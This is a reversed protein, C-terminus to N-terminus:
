LGWFFHLGSLITLAILLSLPAGVRLFTRVSYGGSSMVIVNVPHGFPTMFAVSCGLAVAMGMSRADVGLSQAASIALPALILASVQGGILQALFITIVLLIAAMALPALGGFLNLLVGISKDALGSSRIATSLPWMGAIIFIARWEISRYADDMSLCNTLILLIAGVLSVVAVPLWGLSAIGLTLLTITLAHRARGPSFVPDPDEQLVIFDSESRLLVLSSAPGQVLMADGFLLPLDTKGSQIPQGARWIALVNFGYKERFHIDCLSKGILSTHPSLVVEALIVSEDTVRIPLPSDQLLRLGYRRLTEASPSGQALIIDGERIVEERRPALYVHDDRVLGVVTLGFRQHWQGEQLSQNAVASGTDVLVKCLSKELGYLNSLGMDIQRSWAAEGIPYHAPLLRRGFLVMYITGVVVIPIGAPLFDLLGYPIFGADRLAGSVIINSTNLLTAMGGLLTGFALPMMLRSPALRTDRSLGIVAPMLVGVAAINNMFLSLLASVLMTVMVLRWEQSGGIRRMRRGLQHTVGTKHLGESIISIALITMVASGSFGAFAENPKVLGSLGLTVLVILAILDPRLRESVLLIAAVITILLTSLAAINNM